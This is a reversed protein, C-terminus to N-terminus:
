NHKHFAWLLTRVSVTQAFLVPNGNLLGSEGFEPKSGMMPAAWKLLGSGLRSMFPKSALSSVFRRDRASSQTIELPPSYKKEGDIEARCSVNACAAHIDM